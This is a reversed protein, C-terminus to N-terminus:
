TLAAEHSCPRAVSLSARAAVHAHCQVYLPLHVHRPHTIQVSVLDHHRYNKHVHRQHSSENGISGGLAPSTFTAIYYWYWLFFLETRQRVVLRSKLQPRQTQESM